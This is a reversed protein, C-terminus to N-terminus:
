DEYKIGFCNSPLVDALGTLVASVENHHYSTEPSNFKPSPNEDAPLMVRVRTGNGERSEILLVGNHLQALGFSIYLGLGNGSYNLTHRNTDDPLCFINSLIDQPIGEGDDDLSLVIRNGSRLLSLNITNGTGTHQLSNSFLNLLLQEIRVPDVVAILEEEETSFKISVGTSECLLAITDCLESCLKVLDTAVPSFLMEQRELLDASDIQTLARVLSYYYHYLVSTYKEDPVNGAELLTFCRDASLKLGMACNRLNSIIHRTVYLAPRENDLFELFLISINEQKVVSISTKHGMLTTACIFNDSDSSLIDQPIIGSAAMGTLDFGLVAKAAPNAFIIESGDTGIVAQRVSSFLRSLEAFPHM